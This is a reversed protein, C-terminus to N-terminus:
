SRTMGLMNSERETTGGDDRNVSGGLATPTHRMEAVLM